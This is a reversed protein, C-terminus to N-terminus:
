WWNLRLALTTFVLNMGYIIAAVRVDHHEGILESSFPLLSVFFLFLLNLWLQVENIGALAHYYSHHVVWFVSIIIFSIFFSVFKPWLMILATHLDDANKADLISPVMLQFVLLTLVIAFLGDSLAELRSKSIPSRSLESTVDAEPM